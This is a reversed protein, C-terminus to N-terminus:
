KKGILERMVRAVDDGPEGAELGNIVGDRDAETKHQNMKWSAEIKSVTLKLGVIARSMDAIYEAPADDVRWPESRVQENDDTLDHLHRMLWTEDEISEIVGHAHVAIYTWTPVVKGTEKKTAYWSPSIYAQPGQFIAASIMGPECNQWHPNGRAVHSELVWGSESNQRLLMPVHSIQLGLPIPTVLTALKIKKIADAQVEPREERFFSPVYM